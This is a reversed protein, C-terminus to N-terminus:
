VRFLYSLKIFFGDTERTLNDFRFTRSETMGTGYGLFLVTGPTPRYSLLVDTRIRNTRTARARHYVGTSQNLLLIPDETRSNDRLDDVYNSDYQGVLRIFLAPTIQYEM